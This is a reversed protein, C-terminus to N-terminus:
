QALYQSFGSSYKMTGDKLIWMAEVGDLSEVLSKGAEYDMNFLATSMADAEGSDGMIVSVSAMHEAPMMTDKDIIHCYRKGDVEYYRQYNGSTVISMDKLSVKQVYEEESSLDPNQVGVRWDEGEEKTGVVCINGGGSILLHEMGHKRAYDAVKQVAYGKGISGVDLSMEPDALYVTSAEEDIILQNIDTHVAREKLEEITPLQADDPNEMGAERYDHWLRLVSGCAINVEGGTKEYAEKGLKLLDIIEPAVKVPQKGANDNITKINNVGDYANYIDYWQNYADFQAKLESIQESFEEQSEAYGIIKTVTDFVDTFQAEYREMKHASKGQYLLFSAAIVTVALLIWVQYKRKM